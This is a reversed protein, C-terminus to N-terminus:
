RKQIMKWTLPTGRTINRSATKGLVQYFHKPSLGYGPRISRFNHHTFKDGKNINETAFLSRKYVLNEKEKKDLIYHPKGIALEIDRITKVLLQMEQPELSFDADPGGDKRSLTFHKEIVVAGMAVAAVSAMIGLSHDSLGSLVKFKKAIDPITSINMQELTAPYSSVCHLVIIDKTGYRRLTKLTFNIESTTALGRSFIVPKVTKAIKKLLQIDQDEFSAIKYIPVNIKELFDVASIDFPTSFVILGKKEGYRKLKIQWEWPTYATQYLQYLTQGGWKKGTAIRFWTKDSDITMTDPTYTQLKIADVGAEAAADIIKFAKGIDQNHNASMEAVIFCPQGEGIKKNKISFYQQM